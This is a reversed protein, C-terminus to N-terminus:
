CITWRVQQSNRAKYGKPMRIGQSNILFVDRDSQHPVMYTSMLLFFAAMPFAESVDLAPVIYPAHADQWAYLFSVLAFVPHHQNYLYDQPNSQLQSSNYNLFLFFNVTDATSSEFFSNCTSLHPFPLCALGSQQLASVIISLTHFTTDGVIPQLALFINATMSILKIRRAHSVLGPKM